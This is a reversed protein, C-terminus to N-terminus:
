RWKRAVISPKCTSISCCAILSTSKACPSRLHRRPCRLSGACRRPPAVIGLDVEDRQDVDQEDDQDEQHHRRGVLAEGLQLDRQRLGVGLLHLLPRLLDVDADVRLAAVDDVLRANANVCRAAREGVQQATGRAVRLVRHDDDVGVGVRRVLRHDVDHLRRAERADDVDREGRLRRGLSATGPASALTSTAPSGSARGAEAAVSTRPAREVAREAAQEHRAARRSNRTRRRERQAAREVARAHQARSRSGTGTTTTPLMVTPPLPLVGSARRARARARALAAPMGPM